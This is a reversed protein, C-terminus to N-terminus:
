DVRKLRTVLHPGMRCSGTLFRSLRIPICSMIFEKVRGRPLPVLATKDGRVMVEQMRFNKLVLNRWDSVSYYRAIAGDTNKQITKHLSGTRFLDGKLIGFFLLGIVYYNWFGRYYVMVIAEGGPKLVRHIEDLIKETNSSHHIVGWSWILDFTKDEFDMKEANMRQINAEIGISEMRKLVGTIATETIDIGSFTKAYKGLLQACSGAGVGIELVNKDRLSDYDLLWDFPINKTAGQQEVKTFFRKDIALFFDKSFEEHELEGHWDYRMPNREWWTKNSNQLKEANYKDKPLATPSNFNDQISIKNKKIM